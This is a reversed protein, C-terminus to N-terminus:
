LTHISATNTTPSTMKHLPHVHYKCQLCIYLTIKRNQQLWSTRPSLGVTHSIEQGRSRQRHSHSVRKTGSQRLM